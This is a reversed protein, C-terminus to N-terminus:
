RGVQIIEYEHAWLEWFIPIQWDIIRANSLKHTHLYITCTDFSSSKYFRVFIALSYQSLPFQNILLLSGNKWFDFIGGGGGIEITEYEHKM